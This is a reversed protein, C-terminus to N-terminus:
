IQLQGCPIEMQIDLLYRLNLKNLLSKKGRLFSRVEMYRNDKWYILNLIRTKKSENDRHGVCIGDRFKTFRKQLKDRTRLGTAEIDDINGSAKVIVYFRPTKTKDEIRGRRGEAKTLLGM